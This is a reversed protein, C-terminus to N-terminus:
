CILNDLIFICALTLFYKLAALVFFKTESSDDWIKRGSWNMGRLRKPKAYTNVIRTYKGKM